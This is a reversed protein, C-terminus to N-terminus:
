DFSVVEAPDVYEEGERVSFYLIGEGPQQREQIGWAIVDGQEVWDNEEVVAEGLWGYVTRVRDPHQIVVTNGSSTHGSFIVRGEAAAQISQDARLWIHVGQKNTAFSTVIKGKVPAQLSSLVESHVVRAEGADDPRWIPIWSPTGGFWEEYWGAVQETNFPNQIVKSVAVQVRVAWPQHLQFIGWVFVFLLISITLSFVNLGGWTPLLWRSMSGRKLFQGRTSVEPQEDGSWSAMRRKWAEEPDTPPRVASPPQEQRVRRDVAQEKRGDTSGSIGFRSTIGASSQSLKQKIQEIRARRRRRIDSKLQM